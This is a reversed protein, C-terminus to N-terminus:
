ERRSRGLWSEIWPNKTFGPNSDLASECYDSEERTAYVVWWNELTQSSRSRRLLNKTIEWNRPLRKRSKRPLTWKEIGIRRMLQDKRKSGSRGMSKGPVAGIESIWTRSQNRLPCYWCKKTGLKRHGHRIWGWIIKESSRKRRSCGIRSEAWHLCPSKEKRVSNACKGSRSRKKREDFDREVSSMSEIGRVLKGIRACMDASLWVKQYMSRAVVPQRKSIFVTSTRPPQSQPPLTMISTSAAEGRPTISRRTGVASTSVPSSNMVQTLFHNLWVAVSDEKWGFHCLPYEQNWDSTTFHTDDTSALVLVILLDPVGLRTRHFM